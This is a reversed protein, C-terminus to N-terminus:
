LVPRGIQALRDATWASVIVYRAARLDYPRGSRRGASMLDAQRMYACLTRTEGVDGVDGVDVDAAAPVANVGTGARLAASAGGLAEVPPAVDESCVACVGGALLCVTSSVVSLFTTLCISFKM